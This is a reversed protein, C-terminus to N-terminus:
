HSTNSQNQTEADNDVMNQQHDQMILIVVTHHKGDQVELNNIIELISHSLWTM